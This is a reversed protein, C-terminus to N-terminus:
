NNVLYGWWGCSGESGGQDDWHSVKVISLSPVPTSPLSLPGSVAKSVYAVDKFCFVGPVLIGHMDTSRIKMACRDNSSIETHWEQLYLTKARPVMRHPVLSKNGGKGIMNYLTNPITSGTKYIAINGESVGNSGVTLVYLDNVFRINTAVTNVGTTGNMTVDETQEDGNADLYHVRITLAGTVTAGNDANSESIVTMQEGVAAPTALRPPGDPGFDKWRCCDEGDVDVSGAEWEGMASVVSYGEIHGRAVETKFDYNHNNDTTNRPM